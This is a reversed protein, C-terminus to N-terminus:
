NKTSTSWIRSKRALKVAKATLESITPGWGHTKPLTQTFLTRHLRNKKGGIDLKM